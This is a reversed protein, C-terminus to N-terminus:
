ATFSQITRKIGHDLETNQKFGLENSLISTDALIVPPDGARIPVGGFDVLDIAGLQEAISTIIESIRIAQGSGINVAGCFDSSLLTVFCKAVDEVFMYDRIQTGLSVSAREKAKLKQILSPVLREPKEDPGYVYFVRGWSGKINAEECYKLAINSFAGKCTGFLTQSNLPTQYESLYGYDWDYEACSGAGVFHQGGELIFNFLLDISAAAWVPNQSDNWFNGPDTCWALHLLHSPKLQKILERRDNPNLINVQRWEIEESIQAPRSSRGCAAVNCERELLLDLCSRGIFGSGGTVLVLDKKKLTM